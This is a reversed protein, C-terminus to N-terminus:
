TADRAKMLNETLDNPRRAESAPAAVGDMVLVPVVVNPESNPNILLWM